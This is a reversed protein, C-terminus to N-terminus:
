LLSRLPGAPNGAIQPASEVGTHEQGMSDFFPRALSGFFQLYAGKGYSIWLWSLAVSLVVLELAIRYPSRTM